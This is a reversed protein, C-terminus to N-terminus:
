VGLEGKITIKLDNRPLPTTHTAQAAVYTGKKDMAAEVAAIEAATLGPTKGATATPASWTPLAGLLM